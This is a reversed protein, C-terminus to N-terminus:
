SSPPVAPTAGDLEADSFGLLERHSENQLLYRGEHDIIAIAESSHEFLERYLSLEMDRSPTLNGADPHAM